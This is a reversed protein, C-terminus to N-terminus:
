ERTELQEELYRQFQFPHPFNRLRKMPGGRQRVVITGCDLARGLIGRRVMTSEITSFPISFSRTWFIRYVVIVRKNTIIAEASKFGEFAIAAAVITTLLLSWGTAALILSGEFSGGPIAMGFLFEVGLLGLITTVVAPWFLVLWHLRARRNVTEGPILDQQSTRM